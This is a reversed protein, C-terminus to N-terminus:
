LSLTDAVLVLLVLDRPYVQLVAVVGRVKEKPVTDYYFSLAAERTLISTLVYLYLLLM